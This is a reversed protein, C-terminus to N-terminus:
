RLFIPIKREVIKNRMYERLRNEQRKYKHPDLGISANTTKGTTMIVCKSRRRIDDSIIANDKYWSRDYKAWYNDCYIGWKPRKVRRLTLDIAEGQEPLNMIFHFQNTEGGMGMGVVVPDESTLNEKGKTKNIHETHQFFAGPDEQQFYYDFLEMAKSNGIMTEVMELRCPIDFDDNLIKCFANSTQFCVGADVGESVGEEKLITDWKNVADNMIFRKFAPHIKRM